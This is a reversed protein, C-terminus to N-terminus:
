LAIQLLVPRLVRGGLADREGIDQEVIVFHLATLGAAGGANAGGAAVPDFEKALVADGLRRLRGLEFGEDGMQGALTEGRRIDLADQADALGRQLAGPPPALNGGDGEDGANFDIVALRQAPGQLGGFKCVQELGRGVM